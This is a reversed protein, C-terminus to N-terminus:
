RRPHCGARATGAPHHHKLADDNRPRAAPCSIRRPLNSPIPALAVAGSGEGRQPPPHLGAHAPAPLPAARRQDLSRGDSRIRRMRFRPEGRGGPACTSRVRLLAGEGASLPPNVRPSRKSEYRASAPDDVTITSGPIVCNRRFRYLGFLHAREIAAGWGQTLRLRRLPVWRWAVCQRAANPAACRAGGVPPARGHREDRAAVRQGGRRGAEDAGGGTRLRLGGGRRRLGHAALVPRVDESGGVRGALGLLREGRARRLGVVARHRVQFPREGVAM